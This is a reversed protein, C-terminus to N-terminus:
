RAELSRPSGHAYTPTPSPATRRLGEVLAVLGVILWLMAAFVAYWVLGSASPMLAPTLLMQGGTFGAHMVQALPLSRTHSYAWAILIRYATFSAGCWLLYRPAYLPGWAAANGWYDALLHWLGWLVGLLPGARFWSYRQELRPLAFGTWGLDELLGAGLGVALALGILRSKDPTALLGLILDPSWLALPGLLVLVVPTTLVAAWWPGIRWHRQRTWLDRLGLRGGLIATLGLGAVSPGVLMALFVLPGREVYAAGSGPIGTPAVVWLVAAWSIGFALLFYVLLPHQRVVPPVLARM